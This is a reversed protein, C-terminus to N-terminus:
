WPVVLTFGADPLNKKHKCHIAPGWYPPAIGGSLLRFGTVTFRPLVGTCFSVPPIPGEGRCVCYLAICFCSLLM